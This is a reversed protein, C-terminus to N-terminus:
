GDNSGREGGREGVRVRVRRLCQVRQQAAAHLRAGDRLQKPLEARTLAAHTIAEVVGDDGRTHRGGEDDRDRDRHTTNHAERTRVAGNHM